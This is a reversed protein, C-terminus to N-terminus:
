PLLWSLAGWHRGYLLTHELAIAVAGLGSALHAFRWREQGWAKLLAPKRLVLAGHWALMGLVLAGSLWGHTIGRALLLAAHAAVVGLISIGLGVHFRRRAVARWPGMPTLSLLLLLLAVQGLIRGAVTLGDHPGRANGAPLLAVAVGAGVVIGVAAITRV